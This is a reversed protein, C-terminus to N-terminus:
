FILWRIGFTSSFDIGLQTGNLDQFIPVQLSAEVLFTRSLVFQIGPSLLVVKGGTDELEVGNERDRGRFQSLLELFATAYPSPYTEYVKPLIRYGLVFNTSLIDGFRYNDAETNKRFSVEANIGLRNRVYTIIPGGLIDFSGSGLQLPRPLPGEADSANYKGTPLKIGGLFTMRLTSSRTDKQFFQYKALLKLDGWGSDGRSQRTGEKTMNMEKNLFPIVGIVVLKNPIVEYPVMIPLAFVTVQQDLDNTIKEGNQYLSAKSVVKGFTRIATGELGVVFATNTNIPPGQSFSVVPIISFLILLKLTLKIQM